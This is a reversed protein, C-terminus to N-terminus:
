VKLFNTILSISELHLRSFKFVINGFSLLFFYFIFLFPFFSCLVLSGQRGKCFITKRSRLKRDEVCSSKYSQLNLLRQQNKQFTSAHTSSLGDGVCNSPDQISTKSSPHIFYVWLSIFGYAEKLSSPFLSLFTLRHYIVSVTPFEAM